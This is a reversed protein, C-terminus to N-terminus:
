QEFFMRDIFMRRSFGPDATAIGFNHFDFSQAEPLSQGIQILIRRPVSAIHAKVQWAALDDAAVIAQKRLQAILGARGSM